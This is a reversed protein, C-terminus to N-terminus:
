LFGVTTFLVDAARLTLYFRGMGINKFVPYHRSLTSATMIDAIESNGDATKSGLFMYPLVLPVLLSYKEDWIDGNTILELSLKVSM